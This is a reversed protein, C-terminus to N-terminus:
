SSKGDRERIFLRLGAFIQHDVVDLQFREIRLLLLFFFTKEHKQFFCKFKVLPM